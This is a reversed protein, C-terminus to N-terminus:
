TLARAKPRAPRGKANSMITTATTELTKPLPIPARSPPKELPSARRSPTPMTERPSTPSITAETANSAPKIPSPIKALTTNITTAVM